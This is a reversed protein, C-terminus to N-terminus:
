LLMQEEPLSTVETRKTGLAEAAPCGQVTGRLSNLDVGEKLV